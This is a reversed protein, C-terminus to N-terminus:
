EMRELVSRRKEVSSGYQVASRPSQYRLQETVQSLDGDDALHVGVSKRLTTWTVKRGDTDINGIECLRRLIYNLSDSQYPNGERTLWLRDGEGYRDYRKREELWRELARVTHKRLAVIWEEGSEEDDEKPVLLVGDDLDLWSPEVRGVEAPQLGGDLTTWLLSAVKWSNARNWDEKTVERKEIGFRQALYAKWRKREEPSVNAYSPIQGYELAADRLAALEEKSLYEDQSVEHSTEFNFGPDWDVEGRRHHRYKFFMKLAKLIGQKYSNEYNETTV